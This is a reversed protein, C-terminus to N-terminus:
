TTPKGIGTMLAALRELNKARKGYRRRKATPAGEDSPTPPTKFLAPSPLAPCPLSTAGSRQVMDRVQTEDQLAVANRHKEQRAAARAQKKALGGNHDLWNPLRVCNADLIELYNPGLLQAIGQVGLLEDVDDAGLDLTDDSRIHSDAVLWLKTLYGLAQSEAAARSEAHALQIRKVLKLFDPKTLLSKWLLIYGGNKM